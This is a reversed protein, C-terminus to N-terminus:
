PQETPTGAIVEIVAAEGAVVTVDLTGTLERVGRFLDVDATVSVQCTGLDLAVIDCSLGDVAPKVEVLSPNSSAWVPTGDVQAPKGKRDLPRIALNCMQSDTLILMRIDGTIRTLQNITAQYFVIRPEEAQLLNLLRWADEDWAKLALKMM